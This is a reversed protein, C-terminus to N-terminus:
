VLRQRSRIVKVLFSRSSDLPQNTRRVSEVIECGYADVVTEPSTGPCTDDLDSVGDSDSDLLELQADSCGVESVKQEVNIPM